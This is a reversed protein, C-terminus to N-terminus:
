TARSNRMASRPPKPDHHSWRPHAGKIQRQVPHASSTIQSKWFSMKHSSAPLPPNPPFPAPAFPPLRLFHHRQGPFSFVPSFPPLKSSCVWCSPSCPASFSPQDWRVWAQGENGQPHLLDPPRTGGARAQREEGPGPTPWYATGGQRWMSM